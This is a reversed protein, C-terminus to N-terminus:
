QDAHAPKHLSCGAESPTNQPTHKTHAFVMMNTNKMTIQCLAILEWPSPEMYMNSCASTVGKVVIVGVLFHMCTDTQDVACDM